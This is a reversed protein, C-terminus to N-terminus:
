NNEMKKLFGRFIVFFNYFITFIEFFYLFVVYKTTKKLLIVSKDGNIVVVLGEM